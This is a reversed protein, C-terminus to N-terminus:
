EGRKCINPEEMRHWIIFLNSFIMISSSGDRQSANIGAITKGIPLSIVRRPQTRPLTLQAQNQHTPQPIGILWIIEPLNRSPM